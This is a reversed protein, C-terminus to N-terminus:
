RAFIKDKLSTTYKFIDRCGKKASDLESCCVNMRALYLYNRLTVDYNNPIWSSKIDLLKMGAKLYEIASRFSTKMICFEAAEQNLRCLKALEEQNIIEACRNLQDVSMFKFRQQSKVEASIKSLENGIFMHMNRGSSNKLKTAAYSYAGQRICDHAFKYCGDTLAEFIGMNCAKNVAVKLDNDSKIPCDKDKRIWAVNVLRTLYGNLRFNTLGLSAIVEVAFRHKQRMGEVRAKFVSSISELIKDNGDRWKKIQKKVKLKQWDFRQHSENYILINKDHLLHLTAMIYLTNGNTFSHLTKALDKVQDLAKDDESEDLLLSGLIEEVTKRDFPDLEMKTVRTGAITVIQKFSEFPHGEGVPEHSGIFLFNSLTKTSVLDQLIRMSDLDAWHINDVIMILPHSESVAKLFDRIAFALREFRHRSNVDYAMLRRSDIPKVDMLTGVKPVVTALFPGEGGLAEEFRPKWENEGGFKQLKDCLSEMCLVLADFPRSALHNEECSTRCVITTKTDVLSRKLAEDVLSSKGVGADGSILVVESQNEMWELNIRDIAQYLLGLEADRGHFPFLNSEFMEKKEYPSSNFSYPTPERTFTHSIDEVVLEGYGASANDGDDDVIENETGLNDEATEEESDEWAEDDIAAEDESVSSSQQHLEEERDSM